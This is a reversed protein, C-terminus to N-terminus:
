RILSKGRGPVSQGPLDSGHPVHCAGFDESVPRHDFVFPGQKSAHCALGLDNRREDSKLGAAESGHVNHCSSCSVKGERAPYRSPPMMRSVVNPNRERCLATEEKRPGAPRPPQPPRSTALVPKEILARDAPAAPRAQHIKHCQICAVGNLAHEGQMWDLAIGDQHCALCKREAEGRPADKFNFTDAAEASGVHRGGPAHCAECGAPLGHLEHSARRAHVSRVFLDAEQQRCDACAKGGALQSPMQDRVQAAFAAAPCLAPMAPIAIRRPITSKRAQPLDSM